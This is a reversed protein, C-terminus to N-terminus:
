AGRRELISQGVKQQNLAGYYAKVSKKGYLYWAAVALLAAAFFITIGLQGPPGKVESVITMSYAVGWFLLMLPRAWSRERWLAYSILICILGMSGFGVGARRLFEPGRIQENDISYTGINFPALVMFLCVVPGFFASGFMGLTLLLPRPAKERALNAEISLRLDEPFSVGCNPCVSAPSGYLTAAKTCRPCIVAVSM